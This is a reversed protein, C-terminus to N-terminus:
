CCNQEDVPQAFLTNLIAQIQAWREKDICYNVSTGEISGKIIGAEKLERLHQSVTPQALPLEAVLDGGICQNVKLLHQLIAIRAPHALAKAIRALENQEVTFAASKTVGM